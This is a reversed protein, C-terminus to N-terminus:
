QGREFLRGIKYCNGGISVENYRTVNRMVVDGM